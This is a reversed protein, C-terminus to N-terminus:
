AITICCHLVLQTRMREKFLKQVIREKRSIGEPTMKKESLYQHIEKIRAKGESSVNKELYIGALISFYISKDSHPIFAFYLISLADLIRLHSLSVDYCSLWRFPVMNEIATFKIGLILCIESCCEKQDPSWKFDNFVDTFYKEVHGKFPKCLKKASNHIHHCSDGDIDLLHTTKERIRAELGSKSGRMVNCSDMLISMLNDWPINHDEFVKVIEKFLSESTVRIVSVSALHEIIVKNQIPSFYSVLVSLVRKFNNSTAEDINLSFKSSRLNEATEDMFTKALGLRMKYSAATRSMNLHNLAKKDSALVKSLEILVPSMTFPLNNEALVGLILSQANTIRDSLPVNVPMQITTSSSACPASPVASCPAASKSVGFFNAPLTYNERKAQIKSIHKKTQLHSSIASFGRKGYYITDSCLQCNVTGSIDIKKISDGVKVAIEEVSTNNGKASLKIKVSKNLWEFKFKNKENADISRVKHEDNLNIEM